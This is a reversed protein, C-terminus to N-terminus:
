WSSTVYLLDSALLVSLPCPKSAMLGLRAPNKKEEYVTETETARRFSLLSFCNSNKLRDLM